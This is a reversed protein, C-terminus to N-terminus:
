EIQVSVPDSAPFTEQIGEDLRQEANDGARGMPADAPNVSVTAQTVPIGTAEARVRRAPAGTRRRRRAVAIGAVVLGAVVSAVAAALLLKRTRTRPM